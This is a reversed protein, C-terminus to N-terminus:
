VPFLLPEGLILEEPRIGADVAYDKGNKLLYQWADKVCSLYAEHAVAVDIQSYPPVAVPWRTVTDNDVIETMENACERLSLKLCSM